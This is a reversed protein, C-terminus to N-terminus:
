AGAAAVFLLVVCVVGGSWALSRPIGLDAIYLGGYVLRFAIFAMALTNVWGQAAGAMEAIIVAAAFPPFAEFANQQAANARAQAGTLTALFARPNKNQAPGLKEPGGFKAAATWLLPMYAAILVCWLAITM